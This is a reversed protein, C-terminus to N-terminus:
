QRLRVERTTWVDGASTRLIYSYVGPPVHQGTRDRGDWVLSHAGAPFSADRVGGVRRGAVDVVDLSVQSAQPLTFALEVSEGRASADLALRPDLTGANLAPTHQDPLGLRGNVSIRQAYVDHPTPGGSRQDVWTAILGHPAAVVEIYGDTDHGLSLPNGDPNWREDISGDHLVHQAYVADGARNDLWTVIAGGEEDPVCRPFEGWVRGATLPTGSSGWSLNGEASIRQVFPTVTYGAASASWAVIVGGRGDSALHPDIGATTSDSYEIGPHPWLEEGSGDLRQVYTQYALFVGGRGDEVIDAWADDVFGDSIQKGDLEWLPAGASNLHQAFLPSEQGFRGDVWAIFCGGGGDPVVGVLTQYSEATCVPVGKQGWLFTGSADLHQAYVDATGFIPSNRNDAMAMFVGGSGDNALRVAKYYGVTSDVLLARPGWVQRGSADVRQAYVEFYVDHPNVLDGPWAAIAGGTGDSAIVAGVQFGSEATLPLGRQGWVRAGDFRIRQAWIRWYGTQRESAWAIIAGGAVDETIVPSEDDLDEVAIELNVAPDIPWHSEVPRDSAWSRSVVLAFAYVVVYHASLCRTLIM